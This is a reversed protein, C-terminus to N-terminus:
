KVVTVSVTGLPEEGGDRLRVTVAVQHKGAKMDRIPVILNWGSDVANPMDPFIAAVDPRPVSPGAAVPPQGDVSIVVDKVVGGEAVAWGGVLFDSSVTADEKPADISGKITAESVVRSTTKQEKLKEELANPVTEAPKYHLLTLDNLQFSRFCDECTLELRLATISQATLWQPYSGMPLLVRDGEVTFAIPKSLGSESAWKLEFPM